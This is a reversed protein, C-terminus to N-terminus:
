SGIHVFLDLGRDLGPFTHTIPTNTDTNLVVRGSGTGGKWLQGFPYHLQIYHLSRMDM